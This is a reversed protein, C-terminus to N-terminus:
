LLSKRLTEVCENKMWGKNVACKHTNEESCFGNGKLPVHGFDLTTSAHCFFLTHFPLYHFLVASPSLPLSEVCRLGKQVGGVVALEAASILGAWYRVATHRFVLHATDSRVLCGFVCLGCIAWECLHAHLHVSPFPPFPHFFFFAPVCDNVIVCTVCFPAVLHVYNCGQAAESM